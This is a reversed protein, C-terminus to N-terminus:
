RQSMIRVLRLFLNIIDMYLAAASDIANDMTKPIQNARAWDYGIYGSFILAVAYDIITHHTKFIFISVMEVIIAAILAMFLARGISLFFAPYSSGLTMMVLTILGTTTIASEVVASNASGVVMCIIFGFPIVVLNYGAFSVAPKDSSTFLYMGLFCCAFYGIFFVWKNVNAIVEFPIFSVMAWNALFGWCLVLGIALNYATDSLIDGNVETREFVSTTM